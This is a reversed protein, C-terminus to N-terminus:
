EQVHTGASRALSWTHDREVSYTYFIGGLVMMALMVAVAGLVACHDTNNRRRPRSRSVFRKHNM